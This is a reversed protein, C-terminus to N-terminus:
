DIQTATVTLKVTLTDLDGDAADDGVKTDAADNGDFAWDWGISMANETTEGAILGAPLKGAAVDESLGNVAAQLEAFTDFSQDKKEEEAAGPNKLTWKFGELGDLAAITKEGSEATLAVEFKYAVEPAEGTASILHLTQENSTGPAILNEGEVTAVHSDTVSFLKFETEAAADLGWKAVRASQKYEASTTYKAFTGGIISTSALVCVLLVSALRLMKNKKM